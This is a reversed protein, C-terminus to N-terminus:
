KKAKPAVKASIGDLLADVGEVAAKEAAGKIAGRVLPAAAGAVDASAGGSLIAGIEDAAPALNKVVQSVAPAQSDLEEKAAIGAATLVPNGDVIDAVFHHVGDIMAKLRGGVLEAEIHQLFQAINM